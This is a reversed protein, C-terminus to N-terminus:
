LHAYVFGSHFPESSHFVKHCAQVMNQLESPEARWIANVADIKEVNEAFAGSVRLALCLNDWKM